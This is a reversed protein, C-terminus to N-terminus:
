LLFTPPARERHLRAEHVGPPHGVFQLVTLDCLREGLVSLESGSM